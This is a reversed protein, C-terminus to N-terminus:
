KPPDCTLSEERLRLLLYDTDRVGCARHILRSVTNNFVELRATTIRHKCYNLVEEKARLLSRAFARLAEVGSVAAWRYWKALYKGAAKIRSEGSLRMGVVM